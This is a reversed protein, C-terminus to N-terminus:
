RPYCYFRELPEYSITVGLLAKTFASNFTSPAPHIGKDEILKLEILPLYKKYLGASWSNRDKELVMKALAVHNMAAYAINNSPINCLKEFSVSNKDFKSIRIYSSFEDKKLPLLATFISIFENDAKIRTIITQDIVHTYIIKSEMPNHKLNSAHLYEHL